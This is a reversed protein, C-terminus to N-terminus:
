IRNQADILRLFDRVDEDLPSSQLQQILRTQIDPSARKLLMQSLAMQVMPQPETLALDLLSDEIDKMEAKQVSFDAENFSNIIALKVATSKEQEFSNILSRLLLPDAMDAKRTYSVAALRESATDKQLMSIAMIKSLSAVENQLAVIAQESATAPSQQFSERGTFLGLVFVLIIAAAQFWGTQYYSDNAVTDAPINVDAKGSNLNQQLQNQELQALSQYFGTKLKTSPGPLPPQPQWFQKLTELEAAVEPHQQLYDMMEQPMVRNNNDQLTQLQWDIVTEKNILSHSM